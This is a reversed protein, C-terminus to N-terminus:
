RVADCLEKRWWSYNEKTILYGGSKFRVISQSPDRAHGVQKIDDVDVIEFSNSYGNTCEIWKIM